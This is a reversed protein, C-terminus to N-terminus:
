RVAASAAARDASIPASVGPNFDADGSYSVMLSGHAARAPLVQTAAGGSLNAQLAQPRGRRSRGTLQITVSGTPVGGAGGVHATVQAPGGRRSRQISVVIQADARVTTVVLPAATSSALTASGGFTATINHKISADTAVVSLRAVGGGLAATGIVRAGDHFVVAGTATGGSTRVTATYTVAQGFAV